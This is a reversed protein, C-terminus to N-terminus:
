SYELNRCQISASRSEQLVLISTRLDSATLAGSCPGFQASVPPSQYLGYSSWYKSLAALQVDVV